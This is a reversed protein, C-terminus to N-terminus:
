PEGGEGEQTVEQRPSAVGLNVVSYIDNLRGEFEDREVAMDALRESLVKVTARLEDREKWLSHQLEKVLDPLKIRLVSESQTGDDATFAEKGVIEGIRDLLGQYFMMGEHYQLATEQWNVRENWLRDFKADRDRITQTLQCALALRDAHTDDRETWAAELAGMLLRADERRVFGSNYNLKIRDLEEQTM